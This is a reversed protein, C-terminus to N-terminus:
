TGDNARRVIEIKWCEGWIAARALARCIARELNEPSCRILREPEELVPPIENLVADVLAQDGVLARKFAAQQATM